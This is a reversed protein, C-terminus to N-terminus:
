TQVSGVWAVARKTITRTLLICFLPVPSLLKTLHFPVNGESRDFHVMCRWIGTPAFWLPGNWQIYWGFNGSNQTSQSTGLSNNSIRKSNGKVQNASNAIAKKVKWNYRTRLDQYVNKLGLVSKRYKKASQSLLFTIETQPALQLTARQWTKFSEIFNWIKQVFFPTQLIFTDNKFSHGCSSVSLALEYDKEGLIFAQIHVPQLLRNRLRGGRGWTINITM